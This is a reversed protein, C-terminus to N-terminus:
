RMGKEEAANLVQMPIVEAIFGEYDPVVKDLADEAEERSEYRLAKDMTDLEPKGTWYQILGPGNFAIIYSIM